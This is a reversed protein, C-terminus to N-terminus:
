LEGNLGEFKPMADFFCCSLTVGVVEDDECDAKVVGTRALMDAEDDLEDEM